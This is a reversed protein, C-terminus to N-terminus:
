VYKQLYKLTEGPSFTLQLLWFGNPCYNNETKLEFRSRDNLDIFFGNDFDTIGM